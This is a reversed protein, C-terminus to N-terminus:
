VWWTGNGGDLVATTPTDKVVSWRTVPLQLGAKIREYYMKLHAIGHSPIGWLDSTILVDAIIRADEAPIGMAELAVEMFAVLRKVPVRISQEAM